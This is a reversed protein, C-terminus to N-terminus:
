QRYSAELNSSGRVHAIREARIYRRGCIIRQVSPADSMMNVFGYPAPGAGREWREASGEDNMVGEFAEGETFIFVIKTDKRGKKPLSLDDLRKAARAYVLRGDVERYLAVRPRM